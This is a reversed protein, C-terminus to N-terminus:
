YSKSNNHVFSAFEEARKKFFNCVKSGSFHCNRVRCGVVFLEVVVVFRIFVLLNM